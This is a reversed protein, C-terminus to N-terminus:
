ARSGGRRRGAPLRPPAAMGFAVGLRVVIREKKVRGRSKEWGQGAKGSKKMLYGNIWRIDVNRPGLTRRERGAADGAM